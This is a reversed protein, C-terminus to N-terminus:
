ENPNNVVGAFVLNRDRQNVLFFLFPRDARFDEEAVFFSKLSISVATAGAAEVGSESLSIYAQLLCSM